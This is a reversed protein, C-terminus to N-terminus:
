VRFGLLRVASQLCNTIYHSFPVIVLFLGISFRDREGYKPLTSRSHLAGSCSVKSSPWFDCIMTVM